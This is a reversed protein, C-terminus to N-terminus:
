EAIPIEALLCRSVDYERWILLADEGFYAVDYTFTEPGIQHVGFVRVRLRQAPPDTEMSDGIILDAPGGYEPNWETAM